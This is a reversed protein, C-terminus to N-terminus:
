IGMKKDRSKLYIKLEEMQNSGRYKSMIEKDPECLEVEFKSFLSIIFSKVLREAMSKGPCTRITAGFPM